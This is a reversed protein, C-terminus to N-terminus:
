GLFLFATFFCASSQLSEDRTFTFEDVFIVMRLDFEFNPRHFMRIRRRYHLGFYFIIMVFSPPM